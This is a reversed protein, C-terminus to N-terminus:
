GDKDREGRDFLSKRKLAARVTKTPYASLYNLITDIEMEDAGTLPAVNINQVMNIVKRADGNM